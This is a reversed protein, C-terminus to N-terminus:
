LSGLPLKGSSVEAPKEGWNASLRCKSDVISALGLPIYLLYWLVFDIHTHIYSHGKALVFWSASCLFSALTVASLSSRRKVLTHFVALNFALFALVSIGASAISVILSRNMGVAIRVVGQMSHSVIAIKLEHALASIESKKEESMDSFYDIWPVFHQMLLYRPIMKYVSASLSARLRGVCIGTKEEASKAGEFETACAAKICAEDCYKASLRKAAVETVQGLGSAMDPGIVRAHLMVATAFALLSICGVAVVLALIRWASVRERLGHLLLFVFSALVVTSAFEYGSLLRLLFSAFMLICLLAFWRLSLYARGGMLLAILAPLFWTFEVWYLNAAFAAVWPSILLPLAFALGLTDTSISAIGVFFGCVVAAMLASAVLQMVRYDRSVYKSFHFFFYYQMGFQSTYRRFEGSTDRDVYLKREIGPSIDILRNYRGIMPTGNEGHLIGDLILEESDANTQAFFSPDAVRFLNWNYSAIGASFILLVLLTRRMAISLILVGEMEENDHTSQMTGRCYPSDPVEVSRAHPRSQVVM